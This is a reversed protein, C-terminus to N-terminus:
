LIGKPDTTGTKRKADAKSLKLQQFKCKEKNKVYRSTLNNTLKKIISKHDNGNNKQDEELYDLYTKAKKKPKRFDDASSTGQLSM